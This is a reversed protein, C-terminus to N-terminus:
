KPTLKKLTLRDRLLHIATMIVAPMYTAYKYLAKIECEQM